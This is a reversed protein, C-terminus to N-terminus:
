RAIVFPTAAGYDPAVIECGSDTVVVRESIAFGGVVKPALIFEMGPALVDQSNVGILPADEFGLAIGHGVVPHALQLGAREHAVRVAAAAETARATPAIASISQALAGHQRAYRESVDASVDGVFVTRCLHAAYAGFSCSYELSLVDGNAAHTTRDTSVLPVIREGPVGIGGRGTDTGQHLIEWMIRNHIQIHTEGVSSMGLGRVLARGLKELAEAAAELEPASKRIRLENIVQSTDLFEAEPMAGKLHWLDNESIYDMEVGIRGSILGRAELVDAVAHFGSQAFNRFKVVESSWSVRAALGSHWRGAVLTTEGDRTAISLAAGPGGPRQSSGVRPHGSLYWVNKASQVVVADLGARELADALMRRDVYRPSKTESM